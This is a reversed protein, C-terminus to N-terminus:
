PRIVRMAYSVVAGLLLGRGLGSLSAPPSTLDFYWLLLSAVLLGALLLERRLPKASHYRLLGSDRANVQVKRQRSAAGLALCLRRLAPAQFLTSENGIASCVWISLILSSPRSRVM